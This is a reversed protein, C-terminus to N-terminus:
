IRYRGNTQIDVENDMWASGIKEEVEKHVQQALEKWNIYRKKYPTEITRIIKSARDTDIKRLYVALFLEGNQHAAEPDDRHHGACLACYMDPDAFAVSEWTRSGFLINHIEIPWRGCIECAAYEHRKLRKIDQEIQKKYRNM